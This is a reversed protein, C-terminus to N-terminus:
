LQGGRFYDEVKCEYDKKYKCDDKVKYDDKNFGDLARYDFVVKNDEEV